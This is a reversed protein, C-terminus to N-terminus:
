CCCGGGDAATTCCICCCCCCKCCAGREIAGFVFNGTPDAVTGVGLTTDDDTFLLNAGIDTMEFGDGTIKCADSIIM